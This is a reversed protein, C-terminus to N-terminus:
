DWWSYGAGTAGSLSKGRVQTYALTNGWPVLWDQNGQCGLVYWTEAGAGNWGKAQVCLQVNSGNAWNYIREYGPYGFVACGPTSNAYGFPGAVALQWNDCGGALISADPGSKIASPALKGEAVEARVAAAKSPLEGASVKILVEGATTAIRVPGEFTDPDLSGNTLTETHDAAVPLAVKADTEANAAPVTITAILAAGAIAVAAKTVFKTKFM